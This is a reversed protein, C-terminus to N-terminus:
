GAEEWAKCEVCLDATPVARLRQSAIEAGCRSCVGYAGAELRGLARVVDALEDRAAEALTEDMEREFTASGQDAMHDRYNNEGSADSQSAHESEHRAIEATLREREAELSKRLENLTKLDM